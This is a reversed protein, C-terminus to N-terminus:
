KGRWGKPKRLWPVASSRDRWQQIRVEPPFFDEKGGEIFKIDPRGKEIKVMINNPNVLDSYWSNLSEFGEYLKERIANLADRDNKNAKGFDELTEYGSLYRTRVLDHNIEILPVIFDNDQENVFFDNAQNFDRVRTAPPFDKTVIGTARDLTVNPKGGLKEHRAAPPEDEETIHVEIDYM